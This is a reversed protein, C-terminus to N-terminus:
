HTRLRGRFVVIRDALFSSVWLDHGIQIGGTGGGMGAHIGPAIIKTMKLSAIDLQSIEFPPSCDLRGSAFCADIDEGTSVQGGILLYRGDPSLHLNDPLFRVKLRKSAGTALDYRLIERSGYLNVFITRGDATLVVGNPGSLDAPGFKKLEAQGPHWEYLGGVPKGHALKVSTSKDNMDGMDSMIIGGDPLFTVANPMTTSPATLCGRWTLALHDATLPVDFIDVAQRGGAIAVLLRGGRGSARYALGGSVSQSYDPPSKCGPFSEKDPDITVGAPSIPHATLDRTDFLYLLSRDARYPSMSSGIVFPTGEIAVLDEVNDVGKIAHTMGEADAKEFSAGAAAGTHAFPMGMMLAIRPVVISLRAGGRLRKVGLRLMWLPFFPAAAVVLLNTM